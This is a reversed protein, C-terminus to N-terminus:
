FMGTVKTVIIVIVILMLLCFMIFCMKKRSKKQMKVAKKMEEVGKNTHEAASAVYTEIQNIMEGQADVLVAMDLFMQHLELVSKEIKMIDQHREQIDYLAKKAEAHQAGMLVQQAFMQGGDAGEEIAREIEDTTANPKVIKYQRELRDKYKNKYKNQMQQYETVVEIFKKTVNTHQSLRIRQESTLNQKQPDAGAKKNQSEMLKIRNRANQISVNAEDMLADLKSQHDKQDSIATLAKSHFQEIDQVKHKIANVATKIEDVETFFEQLNAMEGGSPQDIDITTDATKSVGDPGKIDLLRDRPM